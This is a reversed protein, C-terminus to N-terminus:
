TKSPFKQLEPEVGLKPEVSNPYMDISDRLRCRPEYGLEGAVLKRQSFNSVHFQGLPFERGGGGGIGAEDMRPAPRLAAFDLGSEVGAM